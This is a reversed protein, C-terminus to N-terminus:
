NLNYLEELVVKIKEEDSMALYDYQYKDAVLEALGKIEDICGRGTILTEVYYTLDKIELGYYWAYVYAKVVPNLYDQISVLNEQLTLNKSLSVSSEKAEDSVAIYDEHVEILEEIIRKYREEM